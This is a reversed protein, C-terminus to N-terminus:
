HPHPGTYPACCPTQVPTFEMLEVRTGDPDYLNLQWKGDKGIQEKEDESPKWDRSRLLQAADSISPVGLAFHNLIGLTHPSLERGAPVLMYELWETGDPVQMDVWDTEDDKMGGHWYVHFGLLDKYFKDQAARDHVVFGAHIMVKSVAAEPHRGTLEPREQVFEISNGEPDKLAFWIAGGGGMSVKAPVAVGHSALYKRMGEADSTAFAVHAILDPGHGQPLPELEVRQAGVHYTNPRAPDMWLGLLGGYFDKAATLNTSYFAVHSIGTIPPRSPNNQGECAAALAFVALALIKRMSTIWVRARLRLPNYNVAASHKQSIGKFM